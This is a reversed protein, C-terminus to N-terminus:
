DDHGRMQRMDKADPQWQKIKKSNAKFFGLLKAVSAEMKAKLEARMGPTLENKRFRELQEVYDWDIAVTQLNWSARHRILADRQYPTLCIPCDVAACEGSIYLSFLDWEEGKLPVVIFLRDQCVPCEYTPEYRGTAPNYEKRIERKAIIEDLM